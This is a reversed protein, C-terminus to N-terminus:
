FMFIIGAASRNDDIVRYNVLRYDEHKNTLSFRHDFWLQINPNIKYLVGTQIYEALNYDGVVRDKVKSKVYSISPRFGNDFQYQTVLEINQTKDATAYTAWSQNIVSMHRTESYVAAMYLHANAYIGGVAWAEARKGSEPELDRQEKTRRSNSYAGTVKLTPNLNYTLSYGYGEGNDKDAGYGEKKAQYQLAFDLGKFKGFVNENRYTLMNSGRSVMFNDADNSWTDGSFYPAVDTYHEVDYLVGFSRGYQIAGVDKMKLGAYMQRVGGYSSWENSGETIRYQWFGYGSIDSSVKTEGYFGLDALSKDYNGDSNFERRANIGGYLDVKTGSRNYIEAAQAIDTFLVLPMMLILLPSKKM